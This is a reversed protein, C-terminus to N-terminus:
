SATRRIRVVIDEVPVTVPASPKHVAVDVAAVRSDRLCLEAIRQALTEILDVPEGTVAASVQEALAGYDVTDSLADSRAAPDTDVDLGVDIVFEQGDRREHALVGHFGRARLGVIEIRDTM